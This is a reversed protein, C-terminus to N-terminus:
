GTPLALTLMRGGKQYQVANETIAAIRGGDISDGVVVRKVGGTSQRIMAYRGASTGFIGLLAVRSLNLADVTTAQKAVSANTPLSPAAAQVEPEAEAEPAARATQQQPEPARVAAAVAANVAQNMGNPRVAPMKSVAVTLKSPKVGNLALSANAAANTVAADPAIAATQTTMAAPRVQPRVTAFRSDAAPALAEGQKATASAPNVLGEPRLKPRKDALAPDSYIPEAATATTTTLGADPIVATAATSGIDAPAATSAEGAPTPAAAAATAAIGAAPAASAVPTTVAAPRTPPVIKPAGAILLVGEPTLIGEPTPNILGQADFTYLTGFPPPAANADPPPDANAVMQPLALPDSTQPPTDADALFIEDQPDNGIASAQAAETTM